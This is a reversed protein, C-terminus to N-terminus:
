PLVGAALAAPDAPALGGLGTGEGCFSLGLGRAIAEDLVPAAHGVEDLHTLVIAHPELPALGDLLRRVAPGSATAPVLVHVECPGLRHLEAALTRVDAEASPSVAPTDLITVQREHAGQHAGWARADGVPVGAPALLAGLEAGGDTALALVEVPLDSGATYAAALRAATLTKGAGGAGVLAITRGGAGPPPALPVRRALAGRLLRKLARTSGFPVAHSVTEAVLEDALAPSLGAAVLTREHAAAAGTRGPAERAPAPEDAAFPAPEDQAFRAPAPAPEDEPAAAQEAAQLAAAFPGAQRVLEAIAPASLGDAIATAV